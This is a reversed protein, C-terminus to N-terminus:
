SDDVALRHTLQTEEDSVCQTLLSFSPGCAVRFWNRRDAKAKALFMRKIGSETVLKLPEIFGIGPVHTYGVDRGKQGV